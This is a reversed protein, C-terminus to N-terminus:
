ILPKFADTYSQENGNDLNIKDTLVVTGHPDPKCYIDNLNGFQNQTVYNIGKEQLKLRFDTSTTANLDKKLESTIQGNNKFNTNLGRGDSNFSPCGNSKGYINNLNSM